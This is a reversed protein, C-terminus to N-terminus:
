LEDEKNQQASSEKLIKACDDYFMRKWFRDMTIKYDLGGSILVALGVTTVLMVLSANSMAIAIGIVAVLMIPMQESQPQYRRSMFKFYEILSERDSESHALGKVKDQWCKYSDGCDFNNIIRKYEKFLDSYEM